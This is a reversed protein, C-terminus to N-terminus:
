VTVSAYVGFAALHPALTRKAFVEESQGEVLILLRTM